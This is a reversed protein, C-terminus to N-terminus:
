AVAPPLISAVAQIHPCESARCNCILRSRHDHTKVRVVFAMDGSQRHLVRWRELVGEAEDSPSIDTALVLYAGRELVPATV